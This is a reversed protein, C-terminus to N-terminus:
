PACYAYRLTPSHEDLSGRRLMNDFVDPRRSMLPLTLEYYVDYNLKDADIFAFDFSEPHGEQNLRRLTEAAPGPCLDIKHAVWGRELLAESCPTYEDSVDCAVIKGDRPLALATM